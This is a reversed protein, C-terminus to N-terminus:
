HCQMEEFTHKQHDNHYFSLLVCFESHFLFHPLCYEVQNWPGFLQSTDLLHVYGM